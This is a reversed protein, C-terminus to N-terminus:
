VLHPSAASCCSYRNTNLELIHCIGIQLQSYGLRKRCILIVSFPQERM